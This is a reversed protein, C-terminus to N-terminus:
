EVFYGVTLSRHHDSSMDGHPSFLVTLWDADKAFQTSTVPKKTNFCEMKIFSKMMHSVCYGRMVRRILHSPIPLSVLSELRPLSLTGLEDKRVKNVHAPVSFPVWLVNMSSRLATHPMLIDCQCSMLLHSQFILPVL